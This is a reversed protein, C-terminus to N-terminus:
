CEIVACQSKAMKLFETVDELSQELTLGYKSALLESLESLTREEKLLSWLFAATKNMTAVGNFHKSAEGTPVLVSEGAIERFIYDPNQQFHATKDM